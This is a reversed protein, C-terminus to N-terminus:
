ENIKSVQIEERGPWSFYSPLLQPKNKKVERTCHVSYVNNKNLFYQNFQIPGFQALENLTIRHAFRQFCASIFLVTPYRQFPKLSNQDINV